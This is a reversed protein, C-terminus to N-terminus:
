NTISLYWPHAEIWKLWAPFLPLLPIVQFFTLYIKKKFSLHIAESTLGGELCLSLTDLRSFAVSPVAKLFLHGHLFIVIGSQM